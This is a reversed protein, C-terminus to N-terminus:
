RDAHEPPAQPEVTRSDGASRSSIGEPAGGGANAKSTARIRRSKARDMAQRLSLLEGLPNTRRIITM